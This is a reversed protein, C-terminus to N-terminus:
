TSHLYKIFEDLAKSQADEIAKLIKYIEDRNLKNFISTFAQINRAGTLEKFKCIYQEKTPKLYQNAGSRNM